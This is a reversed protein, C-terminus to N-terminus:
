QHTYMVENSEGQGAENLSMVMYTYTTGTTLPEDHYATTNFAVRGLEVYAAAGEKRMIMFEEENDSNDTWTLHGGGGLKEVALSTPSAPPDDANGGDGDSSCAALFGGFLVIALTRM